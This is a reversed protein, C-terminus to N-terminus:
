TIRAKAANLRELAGNVQEQTASENGVVLRAHNLADQLLVWNLRTFDGVVFTEATTIAAILLAKDAEPPPPPAILVLNDIVEWLRATMAELQQTTAHENNYLAVAQVYVQHLLAWSLRTFDANNLGRVHVLAPRLGEGAITITFDRTFNTTATAGNIITATIIVTGPTTTRLTNGEITARTNGPDAISWAINRNTANAPVVQGALILGGPFVDAPIGTIDTVAVFEPTRQPGPAFFVVCQGLTNGQRIGGLRFVEGAQHFKRYFYYRALDDGQFESSRMFSEGFYVFEWTDDIWFIRTRDVRQEFAVYIYMDYDVTFVSQTRGSFNRQDMATRLWADVELNDPLESIAFVGGRDGYLRDGIQPPNPMYMWNHEGPPINANAGPQGGAHFVDVVWNSILSGTPLHQPPVIAVPDVDIAVTFQQTFDEGNGGGAITAMVVANGAATTTLNNGVIVAGTPGPSVVSWVIDRYTANLPLAVARNFNFSGIPLFNPVGEIGDVPIHDVIEITFDKTFDLGTGSGGVVTARVIVTGPDSAMITNGLLEAGTGGADILSWTINRLTATPPIITGSLQNNLGPQMFEAVDVIDRVPTFPRTLGNRLLWSAYSAELATQFPGIYQFGNRREFSLNAYSSVVCFEGSGATNHAGNGDVWISRPRGGRSDPSIPGPWLGFPNNLPTQAANQTPTRRDFFLTDFTEVSIFRAWLSSGGPIAELIRDAGAPTSRTSHAYGFLEAYNFFFAASHIANQTREWVGPGVAQIRAADLGMLFAAVDGGERGSISPPEFERAWMPAGTNHPYHHLSWATLREQGDAFASSPIQIRLISEIGSDFAETARAIRDYDTHNNLRSFQGAEIDQMLRLIWIVSRDSFSAGGRHAERRTIYYPWGGVGACTATLTVVGGAAAGLNIVDGARYQTNFITDLGMLAAEGFRAIGTAEYMMLLFRVEETTIGRGFYADLANRSNWNNNLQAQTWDGMNGSGWTENGGQGIGRPFGGDFRQTVLLNAAINLSNPSGYWAPHQTNIGARGQSATTVSVGTTIILVNSAAARQNTRNDFGVTVQPRNTALAQLGVFTVGEIEENPVTNLDIAHGLVRESVALPVMLVGAQMFPSALSTDVDRLQGNILMHPNGPTFIYRAFGHEWQVVENLNNPFQDPGSVSIAEPLVTVSVDFSVDIGVGTITVVDTFTGPNLGLDPAVTFSVSADEALNTITTTGGLVFDNDNELAVTLDLSGDGVNEVTVTLPVINTSDYDHRLSSFVHEGDEVNISIQPGSLVGEYIAISQLRVRGSGAAPWDMSLSLYDSGPALFYFTESDMVTGTAIPESLSVGGFSLTPAAIEDAQAGSATVVVRLPGTLEVTSVITRGSGNADIFHNNAGDRGRLTGGAPTMNFGRERANSAIDLVSGALVTIDTGIPVLTAETVTLNAFSLYYTPSSPFSISGTDVFETIGLTFTDSVPAGGYTITLRMDHSGVATDDAVTLTLSALGAAPISITAPATVGALASGAATTVTVNHDGAAMGSANVTLEVTTNGTEALMLNADAVTIAAGVTTADVRAFNGWGNANRARIFFIYDVSTTLGTVTHTQVNGLNTITAASQGILASPHRNQQTLGTFSADTMSIVQYGSAGPSANWSLVVEDAAPVAAFNAPAAAPPMIISISDYIAWEVINLPNNANNAWAHVSEVTTGLPVTLTGSVRSEAHNNITLAYTLTTGDIVVSIIYDNASVISNNPNIIASSVNNNPNGSVTGFHPNISGTGGFQMPGGNSGLAFIGADGTPRLNAETGHSFVMRDVVVPSSGFRQAMGVFQGNSLGLYLSAFTSATTAASGHYARVVFELAPLGLGTELAPIASTVTLAGGSIISGSFPAIGLAEEPLQAEIYHPGEGDPGDAFVHLPAATAFVMVFAIVFALLRRRLEHGKM